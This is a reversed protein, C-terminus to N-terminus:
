NIVFSGGTGGIAQGGRVPGKYATPFYRYTGAKAPAAVIKRWVDVGGSSSIRSLNYAVNYSKGDMSLIRIMVRDAKGSTRVVFTLPTTATASAPSVSRELIRIVSASVVASTATTSSGTFPTTQATQAAAVLADVRATASTLASTLEANQDAVAQLSAETSTLREQLAAMESTSQSAASKSVALKSDAIRLDELLAVRQVLLLAVGLALGLAFALGLFGSLGGRSVVVRRM